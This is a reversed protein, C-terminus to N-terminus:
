DCKFEQITYPLENAAIYSNRAELAEEISIFSGLYIRKKDVNINSMWNNNKPNHTVGTYGSKSNKFVGRNICQEARTAWTCNSPLYGKNNHIREITLGEEYGNSESWQQFAPYSERWEECVTIGKAGYYQYDRRDKNHCRHVMERWVKKHKNDPM